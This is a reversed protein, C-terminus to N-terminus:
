IHILSLIPELRSLPISSVDVVNEIETRRSKEYSQMKELLNSLAEDDLGREEGDDKEEDSTFDNLLKVRTPELLKMLTYLSKASQLNPTATLLLIHQYSQSNRELVKIAQEPISQIEDVVLLDCSSAALQKAPQKLKTNWLVQVWDDGPPEGEESFPPTHARSWIEDSWQKGQQMEPVLITTRLKGGRQLRLANMVMLAQVTKGLGVEDAILHRLKGGCLIRNVTQLQHPYFQARVGTGGMYSSSLLEVHRRLAQIGHIQQQYLSLYDPKKAM